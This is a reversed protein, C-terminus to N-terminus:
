EVVKKWDILLLMDRALDIAAHAAKLAQKIEKKKQVDGFLIDIIAYQAEQLLEHSIGIAQIAKEKDIEELIKNKKEAKM